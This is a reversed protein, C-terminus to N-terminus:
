MTLLLPAAEELVPVISTIRSGISTAAGALSPGISKFAAAVGGATGIAGVVSEIMHLIGHDSDAPHAVVASSSAASPLARQAIGHLMTAVPPPINAASERSTMSRQVSDICATRADTGMGIRGATSSVHPPSFPTSTIGLSSAVNANYGNEIHYHMVWKLIVTLSSSSPNSIAIFGQGQGLTGYLTSSWLSSDAANCNTTDTHTPDCIWGRQTPVAPLYFTRSSAAPVGRMGGLSALSSITTHTGQAYVSVPDGNTVGATVEVAHSTRRRRGANQEMDDAGNAYVVATQANSTLVEACLGGGAFQYSTSSVLGGAFTVPEIGGIYPLYGYFDAGLATATPYPNVVRNIGPSQTSGSAALYAVCGYRGVTCPAVYFTAGTPISM